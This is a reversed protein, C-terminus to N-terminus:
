LVHVHSIRVGRRVVSARFSRAELRSFLEQYLVGGIWCNAEFSLFPAPWM